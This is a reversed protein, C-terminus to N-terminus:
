QNTRKKLQKEKKKKYEKRYEKRDENRRCIKREEPAIIGDQLGLLSMM